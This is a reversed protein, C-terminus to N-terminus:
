RPRQGRVSNLWVIFEEDTKRGAKVDAKWKKSETKFYEFDTQYELINPNRKVLMQKAMYINRYLKKAKDEKLRDYWLKETGYEKCSRHPDQPSPRDCYRTANHLRAVFLKKCNDCYKIACGRKLAHFISSTCLDVATGEIELTSDGSDGNGEEAETSNVANYIAQCEEQSLIHGADYHDYPHLNLAGTQPNLSCSTTFYFFSLFKDANKEATGDNLMNVFHQLIALIYLARGTRKKERYDMCISAAIEIDALLPHFRHLIPRLESFDCDPSLELYELLDHQLKEFDLSLLDCATLFIPYNNIHPPLFFNDLCHITETGAAFNYSIILGM